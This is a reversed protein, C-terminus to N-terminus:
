TVVGRYWEERLWTLVESELEELIFKGFGLGIQSM